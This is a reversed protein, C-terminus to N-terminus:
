MFKEKLLTFKQIVGFIADETYGLKEFAFFFGGVEQENPKGDCCM